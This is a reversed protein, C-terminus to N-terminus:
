DIPHAYERDQLYIGIESKIFIKTGCNPCIFRFGIFEHEPYTVLNGFLFGHGKDRPHKWDLDIYREKILKSERIKFTKRCWSQGNCTITYLKENM